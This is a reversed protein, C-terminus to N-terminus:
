FLTKTDIDRNAPLYIDYTQNSDDGYSIDTETYAELDTKNIRILAQREQELLAAMKLLVANRSEISLLTNM